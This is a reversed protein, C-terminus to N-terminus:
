ELRPAAPAENPQGTYPDPREVPPTPTNMLRTYDEPTDVDLAGEPFPIALTEDPHAQIVRRAGEHGDLATLEPFLCRGFLAPVGRTGEYTAAVLARGSREHAAILEHIIGASFFPQDCVALIAAVVPLPCPALRQGDAEDGGADATLAAIGAQISTGMGESWRGNVVVRVPLESIEQELQEAHAGLVVVIPRCGSALAEETAHRLLSRGRFPLLQKAAGMRTSAGAALIVLGISPVPGEGGACVDGM